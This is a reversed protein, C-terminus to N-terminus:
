KRSIRVAVPGAFGAAAFVHGSKFRNGIANGPYARPDGPAAPGGATPNSNRDDINDVTSVIRV